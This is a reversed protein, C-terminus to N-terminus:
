LINELANINKMFDFAQQNWQSSPREKIFEEFTAAQQLRLLGHLSVCVLVRYGEKKLQQRAKATSTTQTIILKYDHFKKSTVICYYDQIIPKPM